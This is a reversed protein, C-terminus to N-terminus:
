DERADGWPIGVIEWSHWTTLSCYEADETVVCLTRLDPLTERRHTKM